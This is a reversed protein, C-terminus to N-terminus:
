PSCAHNSFQFWWLQGVLNRSSYQDSSVGLCTHMGVHVLCHGRIRCLALYLSGTSSDSPRDRVEDSADAMSPPGDDSEAESDSADSSGTGLSPPGDSESDDDGDDVSVQQLFSAPRGAPQAHGNPVATAVAARGNAAQTSGNSVPDEIILPPPGSDEEEEEEEEEDEGLLPPISNDDSSDDSDVEIAQM